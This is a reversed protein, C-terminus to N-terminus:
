FWAGDKNHAPSSEKEQVIFGSMRGGHTWPGPRIGLALGERHSNAGYARDQCNGNQHTTSLYKLSRQLIDKILARVLIRERNKTGFFPFPDGQWVSGSL